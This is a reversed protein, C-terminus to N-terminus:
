VIFDIGEDTEILDSLNSGNDLFNVGLGAALAVRGGIKNLALGGINRVVIGRAKPERGFMESVNFNCLAAIVRAGEANNRLDAAPMAAAGDLADDLFGALEHLVSNFFDVQDGM